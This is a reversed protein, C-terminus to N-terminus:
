RFDVWTNGELFVPLAPEKPANTLLVQIVPSGKRVFRRLYAEIEMEQWPGIGSGGVFVAAAKISQIQRELERQWPLGPQLAWEDLWPRLGMEELKLAIETVEPKDQSNHCLFVDFEM